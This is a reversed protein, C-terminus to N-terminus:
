WDLGSENLNECEEQVQTGHGGEQFFKSEKGHGRAAMEALRLELEEMGKFMGRCDLPVMGCAWEVVAIIESTIYM